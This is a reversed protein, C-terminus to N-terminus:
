EVVLPRTTRLGVRDARVAYYGPNLSITILITRATGGVREGSMRFVVRGAADVITVDVSSGEALVPFRLTLSSGEGPVPYMDFSLPDSAPTPAIDTSLGECDVGETCTNLRIM